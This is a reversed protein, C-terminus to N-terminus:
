ARKPTQYIVRKFKVHNQKELLLNVQMLKLSHTGDVREKKSIAQYLTILKGILKM